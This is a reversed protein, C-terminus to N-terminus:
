EYICFMSCYQARKENETMEAESRLTVWEYKGNIKRIVKIAETSEQEVAPKALQAIM